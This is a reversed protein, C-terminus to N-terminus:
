VNLENRVEYFQFRKPIGKEETAIGTKSFMGFEM